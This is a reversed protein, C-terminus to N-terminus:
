LRFGFLKSLTPFVLKFTTYFHTSALLWTQKHGPWVYFGSYINTSYNNNCMAKAGYFIRIINYYQFVSFYDFLPFMIFQYHLFAAVILQDPILQFQFVPVLFVLRVAREVLSSRDASEM